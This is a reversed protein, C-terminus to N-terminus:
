KEQDSENEDSSAYASVLATIVPKNQVSQVPVKSTTTETTKKSKEHDSRASTLISSSSSKTTTTTTTITTTTTLSTSVTSNSKVNDGKMEGNRVGDGVNKEESFAGTSPSRAGEAAGGVKEAVQM